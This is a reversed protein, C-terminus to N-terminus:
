GGSKAAKKRARLRRAQKPDATLPRYIEVRDGAEVPDDLERLRGFV